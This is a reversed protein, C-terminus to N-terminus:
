GNKGKIIDELDKKIDKVGYLLKNEIFLVPPRPNYFGGKSTEDYRDQLSLLFAYSEMNDIDYDVVMVKDKYKKQIEPLFEDLIEDCDKCGPSYFVM